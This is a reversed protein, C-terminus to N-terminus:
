KNLREMNIPGLDIVAKGMTNTHITKNFDVYGDANITLDGSIRAPDMPVIFLGWKREPYIHFFGENSTMTETETRVGNFTSVLSAKAGAVPNNTKLYENFSQTEDDFLIVDHCTKEFKYLSNLKFTKKVDISVLPDESFSATIGIILISQATILLTKIKKM